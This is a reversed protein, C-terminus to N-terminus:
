PIGRGGASVLLAEIQRYEDLYEQDKVQAERYRKRVGAAVVDRRAQAESETEDKYREHELRVLSEVEQASQSVYGEMRLALSSISNRVSSLVTKKEDGPWNVPVGNKLLWKIWELRHSLKLPHTLAHHLLTQGSADIFNLDAGKGVLFEAVDPDSTLTIAPGYVRWGNQVLNIDAKYQLLLKLADLDNFASATLVPALSGLSTFDTSREAFNPNAGAKLLMELCELRQASKSSALMFGGGLIFSNMVPAGGGGAFFDGLSDYSEAADLSGGKEIYDRLENLTIMGEKLKTAHRRLTARHIIASFWSGHKVTLGDSGVQAETNCFVIQDCARSFLGGVVIM